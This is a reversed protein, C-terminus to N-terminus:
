PLYDVIVIWPKYLIFDGNNGIDKSHDVGPKPYKPKELDERYGMAGASGGSGGSGVLGILDTPSGFEYQLAYISNGGSGAYGGSGCQGIQWSLGSKNAFSYGGAGGDGGKGGNFGSGGNGGNGGNGGTDPKVGNENWFADGGHGGNGGAGGDGYQLKFGQESNVSLFIRADAVLPIGGDGGNGGNAGDPLIAFGKYSGYGASGGDGGVGGNGGVLKVTAEASVRLSFCSVACGGNGGNGGDTTAKAPAPEDKVELQQDKGRAGAGGEGGYVNLTLCDNVTIEKAVIGCAGDAGKGSVTTANAGKGGYAYLTGSGFFTVSQQSLDIAPYCHEGNKISCKGVIEIKISGGTCGGFVGVEKEPDPDIDKWNNISGAANTSVFNFDKLHLIRTEDDGLGAFTLYSGTYSEDPNGIIYTEEELDTANYVKKSDMRRFDIIVIGHDCWRPVEENYVWYEKRDSDSTIDSVLTHNEVYLGITYPDVLWRAYLTVTKGSDTLEGIAEEDKLIRTENDTRLEWGDFTYGDKKFDCKLLQSYSGIPHLSTPMDGEGGNADYRVYFSSDVIKEIQDIDLSSPMSDCTFNDRDSSQRYYMVSASINGLTSYTNLFYSGTNPNYIVVAYVLVNTVYVYEYLGNPMDAAIEYTNEEFISCATTYSVTSSTSISKGLTDSYSTGKSITIENTDTKGYTISHQRSEDIGISLVDKEGISIGATIDNSFSHTKSVESIKRITENWSNTSTFSKNVTAAILDVDAKEYKYEKSLKLTKPVDTTKTYSDAYSSLVVNEITGLKIAFYYLGMEDRYSSLLTSNKAPVVNNRYIKWNATLVIDGTTGKEIVSVANGSEDTWNVFLLGSWKPDTLIVRDEVTYKIKNNNDPADLYVIDYEILNWHGYLVYSRTDGPQIKSIKEGNDNYWGLFEYGPVSPYPLVLGKDEDYQTDAPTISGKANHYTISHSSTPIIEQKIIIIGCVSCHSGETLGNTDTSPAVAEDIVEVHGTPPIVIDNSDIKRGGLEDAFYLECATCYWYEISGAEVCTPAKADVKVMTHACNTKGPRLEVGYGNPDYRCEDVYFQNILLVDIMNIIGDANVDGAAEHIVVAYGDPDYTCGDVYFRCLALVDLMTVFGDGDVDGPIYDIVSVAGSSTIVNVPNSRDDCADGSNLTIGIRCPRNLEANEAVRFKLYLIIGDATVNDTGVWAFRCSGSIEGGQKLQNPVTLALGSFAAGNTAGTLVLSDDFTLRFGMTAIGPNDTISIAVEVTSGPNAWVEKISILAPTSPATDAPIENQAVTTVIGAPIVSLVMMVALLVSLVRKM